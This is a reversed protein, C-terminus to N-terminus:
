RTQYVETLHHIFHDAVQVAAAIDNVEVNELPQHSIGKYCRVFLMCVPAVAAITVADHGAGSHLNKVNYGAAVIAQALLHSLATDCEVPMSKQMIAWDATLHRESCIRFGIDRLSRRAKKLILKDSSRLDLTITVEGPIVNSAPDAIHLTGVTALLEDKHQLAYQEAALIFAAAGCLADHRRDMPVTGAHGPIGKFTIRARQQGSISHVIAIPLKDEYLVPGQEIHIEFYGMWDEAPIADAQLKEPDGGITKIAERLTIGNNDTKDLLSPQFTGAVTNSGLYTTHFRVGEEDSFAILEINFPLQVHEEQMRSILDLGIIVGLPGDFCGANRVTDIHSGIVFTRAGPQGCNWRGRVNGINDIRAELGAEQMWSLVKRCGSVFAPSGFTRTICHTEESICALDRVRTLINNARHLYNEM